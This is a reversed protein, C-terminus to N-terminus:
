GLGTIFFFTHLPKKNDALIVYRKAFNLVKAFNNAFSLVKKNKFLKM